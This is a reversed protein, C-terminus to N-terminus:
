IQALYYPTGTKEEILRDASLNIVKGEIVPTIAQKFASFRVEAV